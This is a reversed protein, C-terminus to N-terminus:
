AYLLYLKTRVHKVITHHFHYNHHCNRILKFHTYCDRFCHLIIIISRVQQAVLQLQALRTRLAKDAHRCCEVLEAWALLAHACQVCVGRPLRDSECVQNHRIDILLVYGRGQSTLSM